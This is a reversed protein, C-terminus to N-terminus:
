NDEAGRLPTNFIDFTSWGRYRRGQITAYGMGTIAAWETMTKSEGNHTLKVTVSRNKTQEQRTSWKCNKPEYNGNSDIRDLTHNSSPIVGMDNFFNEFSNIWRDCIIVGKGGYYSYKGNKPNTCRAKMACWISYEKRKLTGPPYKVKQLRVKEVGCSMCQAGNKVGDVYGVFEDGCSCVFIARRNGTCKVDKVYFCKGIKQGEIYNIRKSM